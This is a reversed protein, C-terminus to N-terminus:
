GAQSEGSDPKEAGPGDRPIADELAARMDEVMVHAYRQSSNITAHGLLSQVAKMNGGTRKLITSGAHHRAGHIRRGGKVGAVTAAKDLRYEIQSYTYSLPAKPGEYFWVHALGAAQARSLRAALARAHDQRLPLHLLVDKKRGKQITLTPLQPDLNLAELGFFLEGFRLGYTLLMELALRVDEDCADIWRLKEDAGYMRSQARPERLRLSRWDIEPLGHDAKGAWHSRARRLIPRLTEVVDRNVTAPAPLYARAGDKKSRITTQGRRTEIARSCAAQDIDGLTTQPGMIALLRAIRREVDAADGRGIGVEAWYRGAADDLTMRAILGLQGTAAELRKHREVTEAARRTAQGTSGHFRKGSIVFDYQWFRSKASKYVSM